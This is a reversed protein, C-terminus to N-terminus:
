QRGRESTETRGLRVTARLLRRRQDRRLRRHLHSPPTTGGHRRLTIGCSGSSTYGHPCSGGPGAPKPLPLPEALASALWMNLVVVILLTMCALTFAGRRELSRVTTM